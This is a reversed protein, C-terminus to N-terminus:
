QDTVVVSTSLTVYPKLTLRMVAPDVLNVNVRMWWDNNPTGDLKLGKHGNDRLARRGFSEGNAFFEMSFECVDDTVLPWQSQDFQATLLHSGPNLDFEWVHEGAVYIQTPLSLLTKM